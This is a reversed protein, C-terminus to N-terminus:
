YASNRGSGDESGQQTKQMLKAVQDPLEEGSGNASTGCIHLYVGGFGLSM